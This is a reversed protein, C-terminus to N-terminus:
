SCSTSAQHCLAFLNANTTEQMRRAGIMSMNNYAKGMASTTHYAFLTSLRAPQFASHTELGCIPVPRPRWRARGSGDEDDKDEEGGDDDDEEEDEDDDEDEKRQEPGQEERKRRRRGGGGEEEEEERKRRRKRTTTTM